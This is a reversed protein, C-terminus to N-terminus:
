RNAFAIVRARIDDTWYRTFPLDHPADDVFLTEVTKNKSRLLDVYQRAAEFSAREDATSHVILIPVALGDVAEPVSMGWRIKISAASGTGTGYAGSIAVVATIPAGLSAALAAASAGASHAVAVVRTPVVDPLARGADVVAAIDKKVDMAAGRRPATPSCGILPTATEATALSQDVFDGSWCPTLVTFGSQVLWTAFDLNRVRLGGDGHLNIVIPSAGSRSPRAVNTILEKGDFTRIAIWNSGSPANQPAAVPRSPGEPTPSPTPAVASTATTTALQSGTPPSQPVSSAGCAISAACLVSVFIARM